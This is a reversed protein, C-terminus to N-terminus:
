RESRDTVNEALDVLSADGIQDKAVNGIQRRLRKVEAAHESERARAGEDGPRCWSCSKAISGHDCWQPSVIPLLRIGEAREVISRAPQDYDADVQYRKRRAAVV